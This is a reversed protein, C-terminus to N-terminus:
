RCRARLLHETMPQKRGTRSGLGVESARAWNGPDQPAPCDQKNLESLGEHHEGNLPGFHGTQLPTLWCPAKGPEPVGCCLLGREPDGEM